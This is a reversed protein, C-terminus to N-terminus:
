ASINMVHKTDCTHIELKNYDGLIKFMEWGELADQEKDSEEDIEESDMEEIVDSFLIKHEIQLKIPDKLDLYRKLSM